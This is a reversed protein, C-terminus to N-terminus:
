AFVDLIAGVLTDQATKTPPTQPQAPSDARRTNGGSRDEDRRAEQAMAESRTPAIVPRGTEQNQAQAPRPMEHHPHTAVPQPSTINM